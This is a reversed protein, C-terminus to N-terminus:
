AQGVWAMINVRYSTGVWQVVSVALYALITYRLIIANGANLGSDIAIKVFYPGAVSAASAILMLLASLILRGAYPRTFAILRKATQPNVGKDYLEESQSVYTPPTITTTAM